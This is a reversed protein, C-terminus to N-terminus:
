QYFSECTISTPTGEISSVQESSGDILKIVADVANEDGGYVLLLAGEFARGEDTDQEEEIMRKAAAARLFQSFILLKKRLETAGLQTAEQQASTRLEDLEKQHIAALDDRQKNFKVQYDNDFKRYHTSQEELQALQAQLQPKKLAAARQDNNLKREAVLSDLSKGPNEAIISDIKQSASLKKTINRIQKQLERLYPHDGANESDAIASNEKTTDTPVVPLTAAAGNPETTAKLARKRASKSDGNVNTNNDVAAAMTDRSWPPTLSQRFKSIHYSSHVTKIFLKSAESRTEPVPIFIVFFSSISWHVPVPLRKGRREMQKDYELGTAGYNM